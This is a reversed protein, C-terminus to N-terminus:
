AQAGHAAPNPRRTLASSIHAASEEDISMAPPRGRQCRSRIEQDSAAIPCAVRAISLWQRGAALAEQQSDCYDSMGFHASFVRLWEDETYEYRAAAVVDICAANLREIDEITAQSPQAAQYAAQVAAHAAMTWRTIAPPYMGRWFAHLGGAEEFAAKACLVQWAGGLHNELATEAAEMASQPVDAGYPNIAFYPIYFKSSM